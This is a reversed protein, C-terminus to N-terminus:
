GCTARTIKLQDDYELNVRDQRFDMTGASNPPGWRFSRAGTDKLITAGMAQDARQGVYARAPDANFVLAQPADVALGPPADASVMACGASAAASLGLATLRIVAQTLTV